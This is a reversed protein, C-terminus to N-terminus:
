YVKGRGGCRFDYMFSELASTREIAARISMNLMMNGDSVRGVKACEEMDHDKWNGWVKLKKVYGAVNRTVLGNVGMAFPSAGGSGEPRNDVKSYRIYDYSHLAVNSYLAPLCM